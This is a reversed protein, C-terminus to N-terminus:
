RDSVHQTYTILLKQQQQQNQMFHITIHELKNNNTKTDQNQMVINERKVM